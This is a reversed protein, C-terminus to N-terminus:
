AEVEPDVLIIYSKKPNKKSPRRELKAWVVRGEEIWAGNNDAESLQDMVVGSSTNWYHKTGDKMVIHVSVFPKGEEDKTFFVREIGFTKGVLEDTTIKTREEDNEYLNTKAYMGITEMEM